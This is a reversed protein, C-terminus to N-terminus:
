RLEVILNWHEDVRGRSNPGIIATSEREEIVAPGEVIAGPALRYRDFVSTEAFGGLEPFYAKRAKKRLEADGSAQPGIDLRVKPKPGSCTVRWSTIEIAVPPGLRGYLRRYTEEFAGSIQSACREGLKEDPLRVPIEYGQGVYRMDAERRFRVDHSPVGSAELLARGETEMEGLLANARQWDLGAIPARWSRAFDFALPAVLFGITSMVGAGLPAIFAPSGLAQAIRVGHVPGAGGFAFLPYRRPDKGRELIHVRAANAMNENVVQHIGWAAKELSIGLKRAIRDHIARRAAELNLKMRGGLFYNPDLYGLVLDADTVTPESGGRYCAPGPEAGASDPGVKLLGLSDVRAISGGGAGIEVMEIASIRAPLGSGKKFRYVRDFEFEHAIPPEGGDIVCFKATTGGMDFSVLDPRGCAVGYNAAALAGAAPGSELLRIPFKAATECTALGGNSLMLLFTGRFKLRELRTQLDSLYREVQAQVYVNAITTSGREFERIEPSVESSISVRLEPAVRHVADRAAREDSPNVFSHLFCIAVAEVGNAVLERALKKVYGGDLPEISSGDALTRQPVDFRLYRPVLPRPLEITLNYLDYRSERGIEIADRFGKTALLATRDGKREILANTVLTTGHVLAQLGGFPTGVNQLTERLAAEIAESPNSPTTLTKGIAFTGTEDNVVIVDTFTGGVDVGARCRFHQRSSLIEALWYEQHPTSIRSRRSHM